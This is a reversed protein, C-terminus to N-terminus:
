TILKLYNLKKLRISKKQNQIFKNRFKILKQKLESLTLM